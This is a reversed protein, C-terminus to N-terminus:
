EPEIVKLGRVSEFHRKSFTAVTSGHELATAAVILDYPGIMQGSAELRAWIRAHELATAETYPLIPLSDLVGKIYRERRARHATTARDVGHWLEAVTIAAIAFPENSRSAMWAALDFIGKEGHIVVDADFIIAM